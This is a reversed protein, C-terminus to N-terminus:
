QSIPMSDLVTGSGVVRAGERLEFRKGAFVAPLREAAWFTIRVTGAAGPALGSVGVASDLEVEFGFDSDSGEFRLLSRYGSQIPGTRGEENTPRMQVLAAITRRSM